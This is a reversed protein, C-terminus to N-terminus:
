GHLQSCTSSCVEVDVTFFCLHLLQVTACKKSIERQKIGPRHGGVLKVPWTLQSVLVSVRVHSLFGTDPAAYVTCVSLILPARGGEICSVESVECVNVSRSHPCVYAKRM